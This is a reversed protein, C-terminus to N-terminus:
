LSGTWYLIWPSRCLKGTGSSCRGYPDIRYRSRCWCRQVVYQFNLVTALGLGAAIAYIVGDVREDFEPNPFMVYRVVAFVIFEQVFGIILIRGFLHAWWSSYLWTDIAFFGQLIPELLAATVLAGLLFINFVMRKPEPELRDMRYFFGLWLTAPILSLLLGLIILPVGDLGTAINPLLLNFVAVFLLLGILTIAAASWLGNRNYAVRELRSLEDNISHDAQM